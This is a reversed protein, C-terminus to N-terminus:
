LKWFRVRNEGMSLVWESGKRRVYLVDVGNMMDVARSKQRQFRWKRRKEPEWVFITQDEGQAVLKRGRDVWKLNFFGGFSNADPDEDQHFALLIQVIPNESDFPTWALLSRGNSIIVLDRSSHVTFDRLMRDLKIDEPPELAVVLEATEINYIGVKHPGFGSLLVHVEDSLFAGSWNQGNTLITHRRVGSQADWLGYTRDWSATAITKSDPSWSAWMVADKHGRLRCVEQNDSISLVVVQPLETVPCTALQTSEPHAIYLMRNGSLNWIRSGFLPLAGNALPLPAGQDIPCGAGNLMSKYITSDAEFARSQSVLLYEADEPSSQTTNPRFHLSDVNQQHPPLEACMQLTEFDYLRVITNISVALYRENPTLALATTPVIGAIPNNDPLDISEDEQDWSRPGTETPAWSAEHGNLEFERDLKCEFDRMFDEHGYSGAVSM